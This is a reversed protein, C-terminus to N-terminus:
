KVIEEVFSLFCLHSSSVIDWFHIKIYQQTVDRCKNAYTPGTSQNPQSLIKDKFHMMRTVMKTTSGRQTVEPISRGM